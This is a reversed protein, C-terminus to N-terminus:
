VVGSPAAVVPAPAPASCREQKPQAAAALAGHEGTAADAITLNFALRRFALTNGDTWLASAPAGLQRLATAAEAMAAPNCLAEPQLEIASNQVAAQLATRAPLPPPHPPAATCCHPLRRGGGTCARVQFGPAGDVAPWLEFSELVTRLGLQAAAATLNGSASQPTEQMRVNDLVLRSGPQFYLLRAIGGLDLSM